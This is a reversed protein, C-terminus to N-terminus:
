KDMLSKKKKNNKIIPKLKTLYFDAQEKELKTGSKMDVRAQQDITRGHKEARKTLAGPRKIASQIDLKPKKKKEAM